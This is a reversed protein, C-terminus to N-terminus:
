SPGTTGDAWRGIEDMGVLTIRMESHDEVYERLEQTFGSRSFIMYRKNQKGKRVSEGRHVLEELERIGAMRHTFRCECLLLDTGGGNMVEAVIDMDADETLVRGNEATVNRGNEIIPVSGWWSGIWRCRETGIVYQRCVEEFRHGYFSSVKESISEFAVDGNPFRDYPGHRVVVSHYFDLFGDNMVFRQRKKMGYCIEKRVVGLLVLNETIALCAAKSLGTVNSLSELDAVGGRMSALVTGYTDKPKLELMSVNDAEDRLLSMRGLFGSAIGDEVGRGSMYRHYAPIGSNVCYMRVLDAEDLGPHFARTEPYTLPLVRMQQIFRGFLPADGDNLHRGMAKMSSGCVILMMNLGPLDHDIFRQLLPPVEDMREALLPFEDIVVVTKEPHEISRLFGVLDFGDNIRIDRGSFESADRSLVESTMERTRGPATMFLTHKELCFHRILATKGVRRRGYIALTESGAKTYLRELEALEESRGIFGPDGGSGDM